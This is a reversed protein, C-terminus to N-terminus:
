LESADKVQRLKYVLRISARRPDSTHRVYIDSDDNVWAAYATGPDNSALEPGFAGRGWAVIEEFAAAGLDPEDQVAAVWEVRRLLKDAFFFVPDFPLGAVLMPAARWNGVLGGALRQPRAVRELRPLLERLEDVTMGLHVGPPLGQAYAASSIVLWAFAAFVRIPALLNLM